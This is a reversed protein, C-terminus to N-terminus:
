SPPESSVPVAKPAQADVTPLDRRHKSSDKRTMSSGNKLHKFGPMFVMQQRYRQHVRWRVALLVAVVILAPECGFVVMGLLDPWLIGAAGALLAVCALVLGYLYGPLSLVALLVFLLLVTLSCLLLWFRVPALLLRMEGLSSKWCVFSPEVTDPAPSALGGQLWQDLDAASAAPRPGWLWGRWGWRQERFFGDRALLPVMDYAAEVQWRVRGLLVANRLLVPQLKIQWHSPEDLRQQDIQYAVELIVPQHYLEPEVLLRATKGIEAERGSADLFTLPLRKGALTAIASRRGLLVPFELELRHDALRQLVFRTRFSQAGDDGISARVLVRDVLVAATPSPSAQYNLPVADETGSTLILGPLSDRDSVIEPLGVKWDKSASSVALDADYWIRAKSQGRTASLAQFLPILALREGSDLPAPLPVLYDLTVTHVKGVPTQLVLDRDGNADADSAFRGGEVTELELGPRARLTVQPPPPQLFLFQLRQRVRARGPSLSIDVVTDVPMEPRYPRWHLEVTKAPPEFSWVYERLGANVPRLPAPNLMSALTGLGKAPRPTLGRGTAPDFLEFVDPVQAAVECGRDLVPLRQGTNNREDGWALPRPLELSASRARGNPMLYSGTITFSFPKSQKQALRIMLRHSAPDVEVDEVLEAPAPGVTRDYQYGPPLSFEFRDVGTRLPTAEVRTTLQWASFKTKENELLRLGQLTKVEVAGKVEEVQVSILPVGSAGALSGFVYSARVRDRRQEETLERRNLEPSEQMFLRLDEAARIELEGRQTTAGAVAIPGIGLRQRPRPQRLQLNLRLTESTPEKLSVDWSVINGEMKKEIAAVREEDQAAAKLEVTTAGLAPVQIRWKSMEGRLVRLSVEAETLIEADHVRVVIRDNVGFVPTANAAGDARRAQWSLDLHDVPGPGLLVNELLEGRDELRRPKLLRNGLRTETVGTPLELQELVTIAARPLDLDLAREPGRPGRRSLVPALLEVSAAHAGPNEVVLVIGEDTQRLWPTNGDLKAAIPWAKQCGLRVMARPRDTHFEFLANLRVLDGDIRGKLKCVSPAEPKEARLQGRLQEIQDQLRQYEEPSMVILRPLLKLADKAEDYLVLVAQAPLRLAELTLAGAKKETQGAANGSASSARKEPENRGVPEQGLARESLTLAQCAALAVLLLSRM